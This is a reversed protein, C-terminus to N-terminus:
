PAPWLGASCCRSTPWDTATSSPWRTGHGVGGAALADTVLCARAHHEAWTVTDGGFRFMPDDGRGAVNRRLMGAVTWRDM